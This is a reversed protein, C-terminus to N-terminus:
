IDEERFLGAPDRGERLPEPQVVGHFGGSMSQLGILDQHGTIRVVPDHLAM